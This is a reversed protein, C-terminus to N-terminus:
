SACERTTIGKFSNGLRERMEVNRFHSHFSNKFYFIIGSLININCHINSRFVYLIWM